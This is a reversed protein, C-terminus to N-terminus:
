ITLSEVREVPNERGSVANKAATVREALTSIPAPNVMMELSTYHTPINHGMAFAIQGRMGESLVDGCVWLEDCHRLLELGMDLCQQRQDPLTDDLYQTFITHPALPIVGMNAARACYENAKRKNAEMNGKLPSCIYVLKM